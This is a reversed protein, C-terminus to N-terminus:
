RGAVSSVARWHREKLKGSGLACLVPLDKGVAALQQLADNVTRLPGERDPESAWPLLAELRQVLVSHEATVATCDTSTTLLLRTWASTARSTAVAASWLEAVPAFDEELQSLTLLLIIQQERVAAAAAATSAAAAAAATGTSYTGSSRGHSNSSSSNSIAAAAAAATGTSYTGSSRGHSNSSSSNSVTSSTLIFSGVGSGNRTCGDLKEEELLAALVAERHAALEATIAAARDALERPRGGADLMAHVRETLATVAESLRHRAKTYEKMLNSREAYISVEARELADRLDLMIKHTAVVQYHIHMCTHTTNMLLLLTLLLLSQSMISSVCAATSYM